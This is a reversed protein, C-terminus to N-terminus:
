RPGTRTLTSSSPNARGSRKTSAQATFLWSGTPAHQALLVPAGELV